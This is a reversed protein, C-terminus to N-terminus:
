WVIRVGELATESQQLRVTRKVVGVQVLRPQVDFAINQALRGSGHQSGHVM